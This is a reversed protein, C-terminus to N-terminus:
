RQAGQIRPHVPSRTLLRRWLKRWAALQDASASIVVRIQVDSGAM